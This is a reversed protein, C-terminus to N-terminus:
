HQIMRAGCQSKNRIQIEAETRVNETESKKPEQQSRLM